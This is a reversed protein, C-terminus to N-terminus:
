AEGIAGIQDLCEFVRPFALATASAICPSVHASRGSQLEVDFWRMEGKAEVQAKGDMQGITLSHCRPKAAPFSPDFGREEGPRYTVKPSMSTSRLKSFFSHATFFAALSAETREDRANCTYQLLIMDGTVM